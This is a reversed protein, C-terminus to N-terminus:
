QSQTNKKDQPDTLRITWEEQDGTDVEYFGSRQFGRQQCNDVGTIAFSKEATCMMTSGAWEGGREYDIAYVYIFRSPVKGKLLTECTKASINWWGETAWGKQKQYGIAVGIRSPTANCLKLDAHAYRPAGVTAGVLVSSVIVTRLVPRAFHVSAREPM